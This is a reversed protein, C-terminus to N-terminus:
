QSFGTLLLDGPIATVIVRIAVSFAEDDSFVTEKLQKKIFDFFFFNCLTLLSSDAPHEIRTLGSIIMKEKQCKSKHVAAKHWLLTIFTFYRGIL